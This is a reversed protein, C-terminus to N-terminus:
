SPMWQWYPHAPNTSTSGCITWMWGGGELCSGSDQMNHCFRLRAYWSGSLQLWAQSGHRMSGMLPSPPRLFRVMWGEQPFTHSLPPPWKLFPAELGSSLGLAGERAWGGGSGRRVGVVIPRGLGEKCLWGAHPDPGSRNQNSSCSWIRHWCRSGQSWAGDRITVVASRHIMDGHFKSPYFRQGM